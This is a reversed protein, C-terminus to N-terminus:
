PCAAQPATEGAAVLGCDSPAFHLRRGPRLAPPRSSTSSLTVAANGNRSPGSFRLLLPRAAAKLEQQSPSVRDKWPRTGPRSSAVPALAETSKRRAGGASGFSPAGARDKRGSCGAEAGGRAALPPPRFRGAAGKHGEGLVSARACRRPAVDDWTDMRNERCPANAVVSPVPM